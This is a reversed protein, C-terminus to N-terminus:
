PTPLLASENLEVHTIRARAESFVVHIAGDPTQVAAPYASDDSASIRRPHSWSRGDDTSVTASLDLRSRSSDNFVLLLRGGTLGTLAAPAGASPIGTTYATSWSRGGDESSTALLSGAKTTRMLAVLRGDGLRALAPQITPKFVYPGLSALLRWDPSDVTDSADEFFLARQWLNDYAPLLLKGDATRIPPSRVNSGIPGTLVQPPSWIRGRDLSTQLEIRSTSWGGPVVAQFLWVRDGEAYLVPNGDGEPRDIHLRPTSWVTSGAPRRALYIASGALEHPGVYSTWAALLEGDDFATLTPAHSGARGPISEFIPTTAVVAVGTLARRPADDLRFYVADPDLWSLPDVCGPTFTLLLTLAAARTRNARIRSPRTAFPPAAHAGPAAAVRRPVLRNGPTVNSNPRNMRVVGDRGVM